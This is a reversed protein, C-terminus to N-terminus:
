ISQLVAFSYNKFTCKTQDLYFCYLVFRSTRIDNSIKLQIYMNRYIPELWKLGYINLVIFYDYKSPKKICRSHSSIFIEHITQNNRISYCNRLAAQFSKVPLRSRSSVNWYKADIYTRHVESTLVVIFLQILLSPATVNIASEM